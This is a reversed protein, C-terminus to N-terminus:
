LQSTKKQREKMQNTYQMEVAKNSDQIPAGGEGKCSNQGGCEHTSTACGGMGGCQNQQNCSQNSMEIAMMKHQADLQMFKQQAEPSLSEYFAKMDPSLKEMSGQEARGTKPDKHCGGLLGASIGLMALAILDKKKM